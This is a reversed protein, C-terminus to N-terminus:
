SGTYLQLSAWYYPDRRVTKSHLMARKASRLAAAPSHDSALATYFSDMLEPAAADDVDWLGAIVHHAGARLFGWALGVLGEGSYSRTGAGSCASITVLEANLPEKIIERAYLKYRSANNDSEPALIIASDLPSIESAIGHTAFHIVGYQEPHSKAYASPVADKGIIVTRNAPPFHNALSNIEAEAHILVPYEKTAQAPAGLMLLRKLLLSKSHEPELATARMYLPLSSANEVEVDDIWYHSSPNPAVLAEFNLQGLSGDAIRIVHSEQPILMEAPQVLMGYLKKGLELGDDGSHQLERNYQDVLKAIEHRAPLTFYQFGKPAIVWAISRKNGLWYALVVSHHKSLFTQIGSLNMAASATLKKLRLGETLSHARNSEAVKLAEFPKNEALLIGIYQDYVRATKQFFAMKNEENSLVIHTNEFNAIAKQFQQEARPADNQAVFLNALEAQAQWRTFSEAKENKITKELLIRANEFERKAIGIRASTLDFEPRQGHLAAVQLSHQVAEEVNAEELSVEALSDQVHAMFGIANSDGSRQMQDAVEYAKLYYKKAAPYDEKARYVAGLDDFVSKLLVPEFSDIVKEEQSYSSVAKPLDGLELYNWLLNALQIHEQYAYGSAQAISKCKLFYDIAEDFHGTETAIGALNTLAQSEVFHNGNLRALDLAKLFETEAIGYKEEKTSLIGKYLAVQSLMYTANASALEEAHDFTHHAEKRQALNMDAFGEALKARVAFESKSLESPPPVSLLALVDKTKGRWVLVEAKLIRFKWNWIPDRGASEHFGQDAKTEAAALSEKGGLELLRRGSSYLDNWTASEGGRCGVLLAAVICALVLERWNLAPKYCHRTDAVSPKFRHRSNEFTQGSHAEQSTEQGDEEEHNQGEVHNQGEIHNQEEENNQEEVFLRRLPLPQISFVTSKRFPGSSSSAYITEAYQNADVPINLSAKEPDSIM